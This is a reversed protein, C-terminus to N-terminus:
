LRHLLRSLHVFPSPYTVRGSACLNPLCVKQPISLLLLSVGPDYADSPHGLWLETWSRIWKLGERMERKEREDDDRM